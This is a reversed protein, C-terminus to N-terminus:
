DILKGILKKLDSVWSSVMRKAAPEQVSQADTSKLVAIEL